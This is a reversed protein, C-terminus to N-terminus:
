VDLLRGIESAIRRSPSNNRGYGLVELIKLNDEIQKARLKESAVLEIIKEAINAARCNFLLMEPIIERKGLINILNVFRIGSKLKLYITGLINTLFGFKYMVVLPIAYAAIELANTGSKALALLSSRIIKEKKEPEWEVAINMINRANLYKEIFDHTNETALIHYQLDFTEGINEVVKAVVPMLLKVESKRSGPTISIIKSNRRYSGIGCNGTNFSYEFSERGFIPHGVFMTRLGYKEFYPPEFPLLCFLIDYLKAIKKARSARYFWVSPAVLHGGVIKRTVDLERVRRMVRFCFDPSDITLVMEQNTRVIFQATEEIKRLIDVLRPLVEFSGMISLKEMPFLSRYGLKEMSEGGVMGIEFLNRDLCEIIKSGLLDGSKEGAILFIKKKM